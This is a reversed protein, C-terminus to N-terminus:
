SNSDRPVSWKEPLHREGVAPMVYQEAYLSYGLTAGATGINPNGLSLGGKCGGKYLGPGYWGSCTDGEHRGHPCRDLDVLIKLAARGQAMEVHTEEWVEGRMKGKLMALQHALAEWNVNHCLSCTEVHIDLGRLHSVWHHECHPYSANGEREESM